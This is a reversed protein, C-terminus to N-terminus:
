ETVNLELILTLSELKKKLFAPLNWANMNEDKILFKKKHLSYKLNAIAQKDRKFNEMYTKETEKSVGWKAYYTLLSREAFPLTIHQMVCYVQILYDYVKLEDDVDIVTKIWKGPKIEINM